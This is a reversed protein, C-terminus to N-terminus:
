NLGAANLYSRIHHPYYCPIGKHFFIALREKLDLETSIVEALIGHLVHRVEQYQIKGSKSKRSKVAESSSFEQFITLIKVHARRLYM